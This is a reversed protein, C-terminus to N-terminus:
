HANLKDMKLNQYGNKSSWKNFKNFHDRSKIMDLECWNDRSKLSVSKDFDEMLLLELLSKWLQDYNQFVSYQFCEFLPSQLETQTIKIEIWLDYLINLFFM